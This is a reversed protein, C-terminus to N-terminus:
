GRALGLRGERRDIVAFAFMGDVRKLTPEIGWADFGALLVETDSKGRFRHGATELEARLELFDYIEGNYVLEFRDSASRMPQAGAESPDQIALRRHVLGIRRSADFSQGEGDPGRHRIADSM